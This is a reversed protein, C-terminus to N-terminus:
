GSTGRKLQKILDIIISLLNGTMQKDALHIRRLQPVCSHATVEKPKQKM